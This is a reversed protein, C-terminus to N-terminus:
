ETNSVTTQVINENEWWSKVVYIIQIIELEKEKDLTTKSRYIM